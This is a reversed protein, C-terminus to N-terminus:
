TQFDPHICLLLILQLNLCRDSLHSIIGCNNRDLSDASDRIKHLYNKSCENM